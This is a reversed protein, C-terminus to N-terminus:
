SHMQLLDKGIDKRFYVGDFNIKKAQKYCTEIAQELTPKLATVAIVRGGSTVPKGNENLSTGAHFLLIDNDNEVATIEKGKQYDDPYGGSVLM